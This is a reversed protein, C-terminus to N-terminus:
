PMYRTHHSLPGLRLDEHVVYRCNSVLWQVPDPQSHLVGCLFSAVACLQACCSCYHHCSIINHFAKNHKIRAPMYPIETKSSRSPNASQGKCLQPARQSDAMVRVEMVKIIQNSPGGGSQISSHVSIKADQCQALQSIEVMVACPQLVLCM